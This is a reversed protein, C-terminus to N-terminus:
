EGEQNPKNLATPYPQEGAIPTESFLDAPTKPRYSELARDVHRELDLAERLTIQSRDRFFAKQCKRMREVLLRFELASMM